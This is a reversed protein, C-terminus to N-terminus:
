ASAYDIALNNVETVVCHLPQFTMTQELIGKGVDIPDKFTVMPCDWMTFLLYDEDGDHDISGVSDTGKNLMLTVGGYFEIATNDTHIAATSGYCGRVVSLTHETAGASQDYYLMYESDIKLIGVNPFNSILAGAGDDVDFSTVVADIDLAEDLAGTVLGLTSSAGAWIDFYTDDSMRATMEFEYKRREAEPEAIKRGVTQDCLFDTNLENSIKLRGSLPKVQTGNLEAYVDGFHWADRYGSGSLPYKKRHVDSAEWSQGSDDTSGEDQFVMDVNFEVYNEQEFTLELSNIKGGDFWQTHGSGATTHVRTAEVTMSPLGMEQSLLDTFGHVSPTGAVYEDSGFVYPLIAGHQPFYKWAATVKKTTYTIDDLDLSGTDLGPHEVYGLEVNPDFSQLIGMWGDPAAIKTGYTSEIEYAVLSRGGSYYENGAM